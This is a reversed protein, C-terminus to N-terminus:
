ALKWLRVMDRYPPCSELLEGHSGLGIVRGDELVVIRDALTLASAGNTSILRTASVDGSALGDLVENAAEPDLASTVDDLLLVPRRVLLARALAIRQREGGSLQGGEEGVQTDYGAPLKLVAEHAHALRAAAEVEAPSAGPRGYAINEAISMAFLRGQGAPASLRRLVPLDATGLSRGDLEIEGEDPALLGNVLELVTRMGAGTPGVLALTTGRPVDLNVGRLPAEAGHSVGVDRLRLDAGEVQREPEGDVGASEHPHDILEVIRGASGAASATLYTLYSVQSAAAALMGGFGNFTVFEGLSIRGDLVARGGFALVLGLGIYPFVALIAGYVGDLRGVRLWSAFLTEVARDFRDKQEAERGLSMVLKAGRINDAAQAAVVGRRQEADATATRTRSSYRLQVIIAFPFPALAIAALEPDILFMTVTAFAVTGVLQAVVSVASTLFLKIPEVDATARAVLQGTPHTRYLDLSASLLRDNVLERIRMGAAVAYRGLLWMAGGSMLATLIGAAAVALSVELLSDTSGRQLDNVAKGILWPAAVLGLASLVMLLVGLLLDLRAGATRLLRRLDSPIAADLASRM